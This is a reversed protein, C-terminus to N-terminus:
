DLDVTGVPTGSFKVVAAVEGNLASKDQIGGRASLCFPTM